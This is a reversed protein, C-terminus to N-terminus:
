AGYPTICLLSVGQYHAGQKILTKLPVIDAVTYLPDKANSFITGSLVMTLMKADNKFSALESPSSIKKICLTAHSFNKVVGQEKPSFRIHYNSAVMKEIGEYGSQARGYKDELRVLDHKAPPTECELLYVGEPSLAQTSHFTGPDIVVGGGTSLEFSENVTSFLAKGGLIALSTKKNPHCHMSTAKLHNIHLNWVEAQNDGYLLYESGWPKTVVLKLFDVRIPTATYPRLTLYKQDLASQNIKKIM